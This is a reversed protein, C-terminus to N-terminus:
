AALREVKIWTMRGDVEAYGSVGVHPQDKGMAAGVDAIFLGVLTLRGAPVMGNPSRVDVVLEYAAPGSEAPVDTHGAVDAVLEHVVARCEVCGSHTVYGGLFARAALQPPDPQDVTHCTSYPVCEAALWAATYAEVDEYRFTVRLAPAGSALNLRQYVGGQGMARNTSPIASGDITATAFGEGDVSTKSFADCDEGEYTCMSWDAVAEYPPSLVVDQRARKGGRAATADTIAAGLLAVLTAGVILARRPTTALPRKMFPLM